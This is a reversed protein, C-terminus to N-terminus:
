IQSTQSSLLNAAERREAEVQFGYWRGNRNLSRAGIMSALIRKRQMGFQHSHQWLPYPPKCRVVVEERIQGPPPGSQHDPFIQFPHADWLSILLSSHGVEM